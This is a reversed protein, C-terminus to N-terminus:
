GTAYRASRITQIAPARGTSLAPSTSFCAKCPHIQRGYDSALRSLDRREVTAGGGRLEESAIEAFRWSNSVEGSCTHESRSSCNILLIRRSGSEQHLAEAAAIAHRARIWDTALQYDPDHHGEGARETHPSKRSHAYVDWAAGAIKDLAEPLDDFAPDTFQARFRRKFEDEPLRPSPSGKRPATDADEESM